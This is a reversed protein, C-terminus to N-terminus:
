MAIKGHQEQTTVPKEGKIYAKAAEFAYSIGELGSSDWYEAAEPEVKLLRLSPDTKGKPFWVRWGESWLKDILVQDKVVQATGRLSVFTLRGQFILTVEADKKIERVKASEASSAFYLDGADNIEAVGMPRSRIGGDPGRTILMATDFGKLLDNLHRQSSQTM